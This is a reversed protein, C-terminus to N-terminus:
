GGIAPLEPQSRVWSILQRREDRNLYRFAKRLEKMFLKRDFTMKLLIFKSYELMSRKFKMEMGAISTFIVVAGSVFVGPASSIILTQNNLNASLKKRVRQRRLTRAM